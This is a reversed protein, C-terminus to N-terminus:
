DLELHGFYSPKHFDAPETMTPSWCSYEDKGARPREIRYFNARWQRPTDSSDCISRWPIILIAQWSDETRNAEACWRIGACDWAFDVEIDDRREHPNHIRADFLVGNPSVQFEYYDIPREAGAGIFIEVVEEDYIPQDRQTYTGWIDQDDCEYHVYLAQLDYGVRTATQQKAISNGDALILPALAPLEEWAWSLPEATLDWSLPIKPISVKPLTM